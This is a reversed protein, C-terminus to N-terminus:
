GTLFRGIVLAVALQLGILIAAASAFSRRKDIAHAGLAVVLSSWIQTLDMLRLVNLFYGDSLFPLFSALNLGFQADGTSIRLPVLPIGILAPIFSAHAFIALYQRYRGEDGLIFAFILTYLGSLVFSIIGFALPGGIVAGLRVMQLTRDTMPPMAVGRELAARRQAEAFLEPPLLWTGLAVLALSVLLAGVWRPSAAVDAALKGPSFLTDLLRRPLMPAPDGRTGTTGAAGERTVTGGDVGGNM